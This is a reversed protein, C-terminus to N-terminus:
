EIYGTVPDVEAVFSRAASVIDETSLAARHNQALHFGYGENPGSVWRFAYEGPNRVHVDFIEGDVVIRRTSGVPAFERAGATQEDREAADGM